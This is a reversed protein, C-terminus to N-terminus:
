RDQHGRSSRSQTHLIMITALPSIALLWIICHGPSPFILMATTAGTPVLLSGTSPTYLSLLSACFYYRTPSNQM